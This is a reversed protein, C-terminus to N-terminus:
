IHTEANKFCVCLFTFTAKKSLEGSKAKGRYDAVKRTVQSRQVVATQGRSSAISDSSGYASSSDAPSPSRPRSRTSRRKPSAERRRKQREEHKILRRLDRMFERMQEEGVDKYGLEELHRRVDSATFSVSM